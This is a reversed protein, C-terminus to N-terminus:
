RHIYQKESYESFSSKEIFYLQILIYSLLFSTKLSYFAHCYDFCYHFCKIIFFNAIEFYILVKSNDYVILKKASLFSNM